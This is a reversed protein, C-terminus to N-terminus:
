YELDLIVQYDEETFFQNEVFYKYIDEGRKVFEDVDIEEKRICKVGAAELKNWANNVANQFDDWSKATVEDAARRIANQQDETLSEFWAKNVSICSALMQHNTESCCDIIDQLNSDVITTISNDAGQAAGQALSTYVESWTITVPIAGMAECWKVNVAAEPSRYIVGNLDDPGYIEKGKTIVVRAPRYVYGLVLIGSENAMTDKVKNITANDTELFAKFHEYSKFLYPMCSIICIPDVNSYIDYCIGTTGQVTGLGVAEVLETSSGLQGAPYYEGVISGNSYESALDVFMKECVYEYSENTAATNSGVKMVVQREVQETQNDSCGVLCIAMTFTVLLLVIKKM